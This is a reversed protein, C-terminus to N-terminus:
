SGETCVYISKDGSKYYFGGESNEVAGAQPTLNIQTFDLPEACSEWAGSVANWRIIDGTNTGSPLSGSSIPYSRHLIWRYDGTYSVGASQFDPKIVDPPSEVAGSNADGIYHYVADGSVFVMAPDGDHLDDVPEYDLCGSTGGTLATAGIAYVTDVM